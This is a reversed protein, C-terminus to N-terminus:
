QCGCGGGPGAANGAGGGAAGGAAAGARGVFDYGWREVHYLDGMGNAAARQAKTLGSTGFKSEVYYTTGRISRWTSDVVTRYGPISRTQTEVLRSGKAWNNVLSLTEGIQGKTGNSLGKTFNVLGRGALGGGVAGLAASLGAQGWNICDFNGGNQILQLAVDVGFGIGAGILFNIFKGTPDNYSIPDGAVYAYTNVDGGGFGLPDESLFRGMGPHYYRARYHYLGSDDLERGTYRYPNNHSGLSAQTQGYPTYDYRQVLNGSGDTLGRTSGIADTLFYTRGNVDTRAFREDIDAGTLIGAVNSGRTEQVPDAGDYLYGTSQGNEAKSTRRGMADYQFAAITQGGQVIAVLQDRADWQYSRTGDGTLNGNADYSLTAGNYQTQRNNDDFANGTSAAPLLNSALSGTQAIRQGARDYAYGLDGLPSGDPKLYAIGTVQSSADYAYGAKVGNPLTLQSRRGLADYQFEVTESGQLIRTLQDAANYQYEVKAQSGATMGVRRGIADYEYAVSGGPSAEQLIRDYVDYQWSLLGSVSDDVQLLRDAADYSFGQTSGDAYTTLNPRGLADYAFSTTQQKRDTYATVRGIADYAWSEAQSLADTRATMRDRNDYAYTIGTGHPLLAATLNGNHDYALDTANGEADVIKKVRGAVDYERRLIRGQDDRVVVLRGLSDYAFGTARGLPDVVATLENGDYHYLTTNGAADTATLPQGNGNCTIQTVRNLPDVMRSLCRNVYEFRTTRNFPDTISALDGEATYSMSVTKADATGALYKVQTTLGLGNYQFETRRGLADIRASIRESGSAHEFQVTQAQPTGYGVTDSVPYRQPGFVLRRKRGDAQTVLVGNGNGDDHLYDIDIESGDALTQKTVKGLIDPQGPVLNRYTNLFERHGRRNTLSKFNHAIVQGSTPTGIAGFMLEYSYSEFSGDPFNVRTLMGDTYQYSWTRGTHDQASAIRNGTDYSLTISRGGPSTIKKLLGAEFSLDVRNGNRDEIGRLPSRGANYYGSGFFMRNGNRLRMWYGHGWTSDNAHNLVAGSFSTSSGSQRWEGTGGSGSIRGFRVFSGNPLVMWMENYGSPAHLTYEYNSAIGIGFARKRVDHQRYSRSLGISMLDPIAIDTASHLFSGTALDIPDGAVAGGGSGSSGCGENCNPQDPEPPPDDGPVTYSGGMTQQLAVGQEPVFQRGDEGVRGQGYVRWGEQPDYIWFNSLTGPAHGDYNPYSVRVGKAAEPTLGQIVAGGPEVTFYMPYNDAVPFPARNVPTPVLALETVLRGKRDRIVAGAPITVELGPMDPHSLVVDRTLPSPIKVKDRASIRPLHMLYPLETLRGRQVDVGVVFQGYEVGDRNATSGDVYLEQRGAPVDFLLFSGDARTRTSQGGASVEVDAVPTQDVRLVQGRLATVRYLAAIRAMDRHTQAEAGPGYIRWRSDTNNQGPTWVGERLQDSRRCPQDSTCASQGGPGTTLHLAGDGKDGPDHGADAALAATHFDVAVLPLPKGEASYGGELMLTYDADPFLPQKPTVFLLRGQEVPVVAIAARGGPGFLTASSANLADVRMARDFRLSLRAHPDVDRAGARPLSGTLAPAAKPDPALAPEAAVFRAQEADYRLEGAYGRGQGDVGGSLRVSGDAQLTARHGLRPPSLDGATRRTGRAREDWLEAQAVGGGASSWGGSVLVRGDSLVTASHAARPLLDVDAPTLSQRLPDFWLGKGHLRGASDVGGWVLVRGSPLLTLSALRRPAPLTWRQLVREGAPEIRSLRLRSGDRELSLWRGDPLQTRAEAANVTLRQSLAVPLPELAAGADGIGLSAGGIMGVLALALVGYRWQTQLGQGIHAM